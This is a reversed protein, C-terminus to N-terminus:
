RSNYLRRPVGRPCSLRQRLAPYVIRWQPPYDQLQATSSLPPSWGLFLRPNSLTIHGNPNQRRRKANARPHWRHRGPVSNCNRSKPLSYDYANRQPLAGGSLCVCQSDSCQKFAPPVNSFRAPGPPEGSIQVKLGFQRKKLHSPIRPVAVGIANTSFNQFISGNKLLQRKKGSM